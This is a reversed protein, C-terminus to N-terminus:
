AAEGHFTRWRDRLRQRLQTLRGPSVGIRGAVLKAQEGMGLQNAIRRDRASQL